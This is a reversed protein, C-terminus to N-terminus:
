IMGIWIATNLTMSLAEFYHNHRDIQYVLLSLFMSEFAVLISILYM